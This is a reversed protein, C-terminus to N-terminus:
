DIFIRGAQLPLTTGKRRRVRNSPPTRVLGDRADDRGDRREHALGGGQRDELRARACLNRRTRLGDIPEGFEDLLRGNAEGKRRAPDASRHLNLTSPVLMRDRRAAGHAQQLEHGASPHLEASAITETEIRKVSAVVYQRASCIKFLHVVTEARCAKKRGVM